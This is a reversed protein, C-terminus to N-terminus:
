LHGTYKEMRVGSKFIHRRLLVSEQKTSLPEKLYELEVYFTNLAYLAFSCTRSHLHTILNGNVMVKVMQEETNLMLFDYIKM